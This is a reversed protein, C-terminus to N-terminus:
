EAPDILSEGRHKGYREFVKRVFQDDNLKDDGDKVHRRLISM